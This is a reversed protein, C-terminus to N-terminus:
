ASGPGHSSPRVATARALAVEMTPIARSKKPFRLALMAPQGDDGTGTLLFIEKGRPPSGSRSAVKWVSERHKLLKKQGVRVQNSEDVVVRTERWRSQPEGRGNLRQGNCVFRRGDKAVWHPEVRFGLWGLLVCLALVIAVSLIEV